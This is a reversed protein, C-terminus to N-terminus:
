PQPRTGPGGIVLNRGGEKAEYMRADARKILEAAPEGPIRQAVGVSMTVPTHIGLTGLTQELAETIEARLRDFLLFGQDETAGRLIAVVEEGGYRGLSDTKRIGAQLFGVWRELVADGATHGYTDNFHKFRDLDMFVLTLPEGSRQERELAEDLAREFGRRNLVGTLADREENMEKLTIILAIADADLEEVMRNWFAHRNLTGPNGDIEPRRRDLYQRLGDLAELASDVDNDARPNVSDREM